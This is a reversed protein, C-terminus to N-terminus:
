ESPICQPTNVLRFVEGGSSLIQWRPHLRLGCEGFNIEPDPNQTSSTHRHFLYINESKGLRWWWNCLLPSRSDGRLTGAIMMPQVIGLSVAYLAFVWQQGKKLVAILCVLRWRSPQVRLYHHNITSVEKSALNGETLEKIQQSLLPANILRVPGVRKHCNEGNLWRIQGM